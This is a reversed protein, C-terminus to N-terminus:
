EARSVRAKPPDAFALKSAKAKAVITFQDSTDPTLRADTAILTYTGPINLVLDSFTAVGDVAAVTVTGTLSGGVPGTDIAVIRAVPGERDQGAVRVGFLPAVYREM